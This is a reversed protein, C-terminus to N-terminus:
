SHTWSSSGDAISDASVLIPWGNADVGVWDGPQLQLVGRRPVFLLGNRTFAGPYVRDGEVGDYKIANQITALDADSLTSSAPSWAVATLTTTADTGLTRTSM